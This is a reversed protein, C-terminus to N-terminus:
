TLAGATANILVLVLVLAHASPSRGVQSHTATRMMHSRITPVHMM